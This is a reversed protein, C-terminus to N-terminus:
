TVTYGLDIYLERLEQNNRMRWIGQEVVAGYIRRWLKREGTNMRKVAQLALCCGFIEKRISRV